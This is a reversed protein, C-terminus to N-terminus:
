KKKKKKEGLTDTKILPVFIVLQAQQQSHNWFHVPALEHGYLVHKQNRRKPSARLMGQTGQSLNEGLLELHKEQLQNLSARSAHSIRLTEPIVESGEGWASAM